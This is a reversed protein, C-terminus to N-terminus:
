EDNQAKGNRTVIFRPYDQKFTEASHCLGHVINNVNTNTGSPVICTHDPVSAIRIVLLVFISLEYQLLPLSPDKANGNLSISNKIHM